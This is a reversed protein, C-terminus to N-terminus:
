GIDLSLLVTLPARRRLFAAMHTTLCNGSAIFAWPRCAISWEKWSSWAALLRHM